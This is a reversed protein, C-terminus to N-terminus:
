YVNAIMVMRINNTHVAGAAISREKAELIKIKCYKQETSKIMRKRSIAPYYFKATGM